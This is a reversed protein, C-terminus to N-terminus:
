HHTEPLGGQCGWHRVVAVVGVQQSKGEVARSAIILRSRQENVGFVRRSPETCLMKTEQHAGQNCTQLRVMHLPAITHQDVQPVIYAESM